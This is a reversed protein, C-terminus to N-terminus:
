NNYFEIGYYQLWPVKMINWKDITGNKKHSDNFFEELWSFEILINNYEEKSSTDIKTKLEIKSVKEKSGYQFITGAEKIPHLFNCDLREFLDWCEESDFHLRFRANITKCFIYFWCCSQRPDYIINTISNANCFELSQKINNIKEITEVPLNTIKQNCQPCDTDRINKICFSHFNHNCNTVFNELKINEKCIFCKIQILEQNKIEKVQEKFINKTSINKINEKHKEDSLTNLHQYCYMGKSKRKCPKGNKNKGNCVKLLSTM